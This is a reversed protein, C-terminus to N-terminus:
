FDISVDINYIMQITDRLDVNDDLACDIHKGELPVLCLRCYESLNSLTM